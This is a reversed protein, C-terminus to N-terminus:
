RRWSKIAWAATAPPSLQGHFAEYVEVQYGLRSWDEALWHSRHRQLANADLEDQEVIGVPAFIVVGRNVFRELRLLLDVADRRSFHELVDILLALDFEGARFRGFVHEIRCDLVEHRRAAAQRQRLKNLYPHFAEVSALRAWPIDLIQRAIVTEGPGAGLDLCSLGALDGFAATLRQTLEAGDEFTFGGVPHVRIPGPAPRGLRWRAWTIRPSKLFRPNGIIQM